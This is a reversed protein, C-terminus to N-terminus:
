YIFLEGYKSIVMLYLLSTQVSLCNLIKPHFQILELYLQRSGLSWVSSANVFCWHLLM